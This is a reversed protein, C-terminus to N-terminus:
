GDDSAFAKRDSSARPNLNSSWLWRVARDYDYTLDM